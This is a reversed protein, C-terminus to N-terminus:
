VVSLELKGLEGYDAELVDGSNVPVAGTCTGCSVMQGAKLGMQAMGPQNLLWSVFKLPHGFISMGSHGEAVTEGSVQLVVPHSSLDFQQWNKVPEGFVFYQNAGFDGIVSTGPSGEPDTFRTGVFEFGPAVWEICELAEEFTIDKDERKIDASMCAVFEAEVRPTHAALLSVKDPGTVQKTFAPYLPGYFPDSLGLINLTVDATAGIKYGNLQEGSALDCAHQLRYADEVSLPEEPFPCVKGDLRAQWLEKALIDFDSRAL